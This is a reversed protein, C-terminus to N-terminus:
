ATLVADDRYLDNVLLARREGVQAKASARKEELASVGAQRYEPASLMYLSAIEVLKQDFYEDIM